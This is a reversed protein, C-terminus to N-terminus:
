KKALCSYCYLLFWMHKFPFDKKNAEYRLHVYKRVLHLPTPWVASGIKTGSAILTLRFPRFLEGAILDLVVNFRYSIEVM